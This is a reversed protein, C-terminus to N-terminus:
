STVRDGQERRSAGGGRLAVLQARSQNETSGCAVAGGQLARPASLEPKLSSREQPKPFTPELGFGPVPEQEWPLRENKIMAYVAIFGIIHPAGIQM